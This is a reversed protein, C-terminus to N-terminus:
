CIDKAAFRAELLWIIIMAGIFHDVLPEIKGVHFSYGQRSNRQRNKM